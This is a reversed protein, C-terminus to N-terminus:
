AGKVAQFIGDLVWLVSERGAHFSFVEPNQEQVPGHVSEFYEDGSSPRIIDNDGRCFCGHRRQINQHDPV